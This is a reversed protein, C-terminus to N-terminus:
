VNVNELTVSTIDALSQLLRVEEQTPTHEKAWYNGIAGIPSLTRIPVVALSKVFTPRYAEWLVRHDSYIDPIVAPKRHEMVWGSVCENMPFRSGKWLPSIADEDAYFCSQGERLVFSAGDAGTLRRAASRVIKMVTELDRALSLEQVTQAFLKLNNDSHESM